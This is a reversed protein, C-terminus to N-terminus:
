ASVPEVRFRGDQERLVGAVVRPDHDFLLIAGTELAWDRVRRKTEIAELPEVDYAAVWALREIHVAWPALDGLCIARQGGSEIVVCQHARTHGRTVVCRVGPTVRTDGYLLRLQGSAGLPRFNEALYTARTRENPFLADAYELRQVWYEANPFTAVVQDDQRRTNGGCHDAHLHTNIVVDVDEPSVGLAALSVLLRDEGEIAFNRKFKADLKTGHGTDVLIRRGDSEILWGHFVMGVRNLEDAEAVRAWLVKPVLGFHGGGDARFSEGLVHHVTVNGIQIQM